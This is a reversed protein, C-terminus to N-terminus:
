IGLTTVFKTTLYPDMAERGGEQGFGSDKVGGFPVEPLSLGFHNISMMGTEVRAGIEEARKASRTFAFAALGYPLRNSEAVVDDMTAFSNITAMPGFPEENMVRAVLPPDRLVTPEFFFGRNGFERGGAALTAGLAVADDTLARMAGVRRANVLPGMDSAEEMGDGVKIRSVEALFADAFQAEVSEQVLLRTPAICIQGANRYKAAALIRAAGEVDADDFVIAPAHGGLEMTVRKMHLGALAALQKGVPTSGTFSIKRIAPHPILHESIESPIGYVLGLVGAPLGADAFARVVAAPAGPTEESAKVIITCGSALAASVKRITQNIPFNWPTFAAVPGVPERFCLQQVGIRRAPVITGYTRRGEEAFWDVIDAAALTETRAERLPKGQELTLTRAIEESRERILVGAQRLIRYREFAGLDRWAPFARAAALAAEDLDPIEAKAVTGIAEGTAPNIVNLTQTAAGDRWQGDVFLKVNQYM